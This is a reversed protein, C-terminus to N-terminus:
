LKKLDSIKPKVDASIPQHAELSIGRATLAPAPGSVDKRPRFAPKVRQWWELCDNSQNLWGARFCARYQRDM